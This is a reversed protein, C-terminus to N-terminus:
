KTSAHDPRLFYSIYFRKRAGDVPQTVRHVPSHLKGGSLRQLTNAVNILACHEKVPTFAWNKDGSGPIQAKLGWQDYFLFTFTGSDTHTNDGVNAVLDLSPEYILKLGSDSTANDQHLNELLADHPLGLESSLIPLLSKCVSNSLTSFRKFLEKHEELVEPLVLKGSTIEDDSIEFTEDCDSFKYGRDQSPKQDPRTDKLKTERGQSFYLDSVRYVEPLDQLLQKAQADQRLDLFFFGSSSAADLLQAVASPDKKALKSYDIVSPEYTEFPKNEIITTISSM